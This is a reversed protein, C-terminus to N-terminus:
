NHNKRSTTNLSPQLYNTLPIQVLVHRIQFLLVMTAHYLEVLQSKCSLGKRFVHQNPNFIHNAELHRMLPVTFQRPCSTVIDRRLIKAARLLVKLDEKLVDASVGSAILRDKSRTSLIHEPKTKDPHRSFQVDPINDLILQKLYPKYRPNHPVPLENEDLLEIYM